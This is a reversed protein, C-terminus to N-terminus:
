DEDELWLVGSCVDDLVLIGGDFTAMTAPQWAPGFSGGTRSTRWGDEWNGNTYFRAGPSFRSLFEEATAQAIDEPLRPSSFAMDERLLYCLIAHAVAKEV